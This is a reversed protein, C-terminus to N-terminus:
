RTGARARPRAPSLLAAPLQAFIACGTTAHALLTGDAEALLRGEATATSRGAHVVSGEALVRGTASTMARIYRVQLDTTTFGAGVGLTTHVACGM